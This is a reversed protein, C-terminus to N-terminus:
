NPIFEGNNEIINEMIKKLRENPDEVDATYNYAKDILESMEITSLGSEFDIFDNGAFLGDTIYGHDDFDQHGILWESDWKEFACEILMLQEITFYLTLDKSIKKSIHFTIGNIDEITCQNNFKVNSMFMAGLACCECSIEDFNSQVSADDDLIEENYIPTIYSRGLANYKNVKIQELVDKAIAIRKQEPSLKTFYNNWEKIQQETIM